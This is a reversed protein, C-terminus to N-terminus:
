YRCAAYGANQLHEVRKDSRGNATCFYFHGIYAMVARVRHGFCAPVAIPHGLPILLLGRFLALMQLAAVRAIFLSNVRITRFSARLGVPAFGATLDEILFRKTYVRVM